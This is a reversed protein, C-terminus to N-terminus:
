IAPGRFGAAFLAFIFQATMQAETYKVPVLEWAYRGEDLPIREEGAIAVIRGAADRRFGFTEGFVLTRALLPPPGAGSPRGCRFGQPDHEKSVMAANFAQLIGVHNQDDRRYLFCRASAFAVSGRQTAAAASAAKGRPMEVGTSVCGATLSVAFVCVGLVALRAGRRARAHPCHNVDM